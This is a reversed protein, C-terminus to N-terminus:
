LCAALWGSVRFFSKGILKPLSPLIRDDALFIDFMKCLQRLLHASVSYFMMFQFANRNHHGSLYKVEQSADLKWTYSM